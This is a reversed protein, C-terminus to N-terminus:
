NEPPLASSVITPLGRVYILKLDKEGEALRSNLQQRMERHLKLQMPTKDGAIRINKWRENGKLRGAARLFTSVAREHPMSIRLPRSNVTKAHDFKGLRLLDAAQSVDVEISGGLEALFAVDSKMREQKSDANTEPLGFVIVNKGRRQRESVEQVVNEFEESSLARPGCHATKTTKLEAIDRQLSLLAAKINTIPM